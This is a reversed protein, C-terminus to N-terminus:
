KKFKKYAFYGLVLIGATVLIYYIPEKTTNGQTTPRTPQNKAIGGKNNCAMAVKGVMGTTPEQAQFDFTGDNCLIKIRNDQGITIARYQGSNIGGNPDNIIQSM